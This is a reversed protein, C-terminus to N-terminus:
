YLSILAVMENMVYVSAPASSFRYAVESKM